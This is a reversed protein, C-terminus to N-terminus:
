GKIATGLLQSSATGAAQIGQVTNRGNLFLATIVGITIVGTVFIKVTDQM